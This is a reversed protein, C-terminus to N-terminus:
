PARGTATTVDDLSLTIRVGQPEAKALSTARCLAELCHALSGRGGQRDLLQQLAGFAELRLVTGRSLEALILWAGDISRSSARDVGAHSREETNSSGVPPQGM